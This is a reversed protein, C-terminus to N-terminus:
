SLGSRSRAFASGVPAASSATWISLPPPDITAMAGAWAAERMALVTASEAGLNGRGVGALVRRGNAPSLEYWTPLEGQTDGFEPGAAVAVLGQCHLRLDAGEYSSEYRPEEAEYHFTTTM